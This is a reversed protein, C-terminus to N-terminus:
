KSTGGGGKKPAFFGRECKSVLRQGERGGGGRLVPEAERGRAPRVDRGGEKQM